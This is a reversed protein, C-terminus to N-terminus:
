PITAPCLSGGKTRLLGALKQVAPLEKDLANKTETLLRREESSGDDGSRDGSSRFASSHDDAPGGKAALLANVQNQLEMLKTDATCFTQLSDLSVMATDSDNAAGADTAVSMIFTQANSEATQNFQLIQTALTELSPHEAMRFAARNVRQVAPLLLGILIAIIAIVVLLEILTFGGQARFELQTKM